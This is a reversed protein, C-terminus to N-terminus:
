HRENLFLLDFDVREFEDLMGGKTANYITVGHKKAIYKISRYQGWLNEVIPLADWLTTLVKGESSVDPDSVLGVQRDFFYNYENKVFWDHDVGILYIHDFGMYLATMLAMIPVSQVNPLVGYLEPLQGNSSFQRKGMCLYNVERSQFLKNDNVLSWEQWALFIEADGISQHMEKFWVITKELPLTSHTIAPVFHYKPQIELFDPHQYGNSVSLVIEGRLQKVDIELVSPGNCLIFCREGVHRNLLSKNSRFVSLHTFFFFLARPSYNRILQHVKPPLIWSIVINKLESIM